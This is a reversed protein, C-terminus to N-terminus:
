SKWWVKVWKGTNKELVKYEGNKDRRKEQKNWSDWIAKTIEM